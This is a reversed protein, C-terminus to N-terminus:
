SVDHIWCRDFAPFSTGPMTSDSDPEEHRQVVGGVPSLIGCGLASSKVYVLVEQVPPRREREIQWCDELLTWVKDSLGLDLANTPKPPRVGGLVKIAVEIGTQKGFPTTGTLM